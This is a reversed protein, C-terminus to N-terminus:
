SERRMNSLVPRHSLIKPGDDNAAVATTVVDFRMLPAGFLDAWEFSVLFAAPNM